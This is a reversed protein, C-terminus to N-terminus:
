TTIKKYEKYNNIYADKILLASRYSLNNSRINNSKTRGISRSISAYSIKSNVKLLYVIFNNIEDIFDSKEKKM